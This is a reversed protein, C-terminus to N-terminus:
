IGATIDNETHGNNTRIFSGGDQSGGFLNINGTALNRGSNLSGNLINGDYTWAGSDHLNQLLKKLANELTTVRSELTTVRSELSSVRQTLANILNTLESHYREVKADLEDIRHNLADIKPQFNESWIGDDKAVIDNLSAKSIKVYASLKEINSGGADYVVKGNEIHYKKWDGDKLLRVTNTELTEINEDLLKNMLTIMYDLQRIFRALFDYYSKANTNYDADDDYWPRFHRKDGFWHCIEEWDKNFSPDNFPFM